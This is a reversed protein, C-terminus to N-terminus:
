PEYPRSFIKKRVGHQKAQQRWGINAFACYLWRPIVPRAMLSVAEPPVDGGAVLSDAALDLAKVVNRVKGGGKELPTQSVAGGMSLALAGAWSFGTETAFKRMIDVAPQNQYAEPFGCNVIAMLKQPRTELSSGEPEAPNSPREARQRRREAILEVAAPLQDVYLPFAVVVLDAADVADLMRDTNEKSYLAQGASMSETALGGTELKRILYSGMSYSSSKTGKPSGVLLFARQKKMTKGKTQEM